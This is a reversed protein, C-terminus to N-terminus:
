INYKQLRDMNILRLMEEGDLDPIRTAGGSMIKKIVFPGSRRSKMKGRLDFTEDKLLKLVLDGEKLNRLKVKKNFAKAIRKQYGQAHYQAKARKKDDQSPHEEYEEKAAEVAVNAQPQYPSSKHHEINYLEMIRRVEGKFHSGNNFIIEQPVGFRCIINNEIFRAVHKAKLVSYSDAEVWKTFYDIAVLIYEHGNSAKSSDKRDCRHGLNLVAM